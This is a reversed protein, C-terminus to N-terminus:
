LDVLTFGTQLGYLDVCVRVRKHTDDIPALQQLTVTMPTADLPDFIGQYQYNTMPVPTVGGGNSLTLTLAGTSSTYVFLAKNEKFKETQTLPNAATWNGMAVKGSIPPAFSVWGEVGTATSKYEYYTVVNFAVNQNMPSASVNVACNNLTHEEVAVQFASALVVLATCAFGAALALHRRKM